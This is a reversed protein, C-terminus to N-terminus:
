LKSLDFYAIWHAARENFWEIHPRPKLHNCLKPEILLKPQIYSM